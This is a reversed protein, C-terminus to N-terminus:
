IKCRLELLCDTKSRTSRLTIYVNISNIYMYNHAHTCVYTHLGIYACTNVLIHMYLEYVIIDIFYSM